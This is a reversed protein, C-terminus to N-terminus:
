LQKLWALDATFELLRRISRFGSKLSRRDYSSLLAAPLDTGTTGETIGVRGQQWLVIRLTDIAERFIEDQEPLRARAHTLRELTSRGFVDRVALAFVRGVDVLPALASRELHFTPAHEGFSDVVADEFFTLPPLSDLCDNALLYLFEQKVADTATTEVDHWLSRRGHVARVDFFARSRYTQQLVPDDIWARYRDKWAGVSASAFGADFAQTVRPIYGCAILGDHVHQLQTRVAAGSVGDEHVAVLIPARMTLSETRGASGGVCLSAAAGDFGVLEAMRGLIVGDLLGTLKALWDVSAAGDLHQLVFARTRHNVLRLGDITSAVRAEDLLALPNDGFTSVLDGRTVLARVPGGTAGDSTIALADADTSGMALIGDAITADPPVSVPPRVLAAVPLRADGAGAAIWDLLTGATLVGQLRNGADTVVLAEARSAHLRRAAEALSDATTCRPLVRRGVLTQLFAGPPDLRTDAARYEPTVRSEAAVYQAAHPYKLVYADFDMASFGYVVVESESRVTYLCAPADNFREVGLLDGAGRVDRLAPEEAAEEWLSVTGQQIVFVQSRHPEGQWLVYENPEYFRVRGGGALALLDADDIASFPAHKKLFDVVRHGIAATEM